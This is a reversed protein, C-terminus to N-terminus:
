MHEIAFYQNKVFSLSKEEFLINEVLLRMDKYKHRYIKM